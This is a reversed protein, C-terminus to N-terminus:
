FWQPNTTAITMLGFFLEAPVAVIGAAIGLDAADAEGFGLLRALGWIVIYALFPFGVAVALMILTIETGNVEGRELVAPLAM